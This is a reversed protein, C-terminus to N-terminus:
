RACGVKTPSVVVDDYWVDTAPATPTLYYFPGIGLAKFADTSTRTVQIATVEVDDVFARATTATLAWEVCHFGSGTVLVQSAKTSTPASYVVASLRGGTDVGLEFGNGEVTTATALRLLAPPKVPVHTFFRVFFPLQPVLVNRSARPSNGAALHAKLSKAGRHAMASDVTISCGSCKDDSGPLSSLNTEFDACFHDSALCTLKPAADADLDADVGLAGDPTVDADIAVDSESADTGTAGGGDTPADTPAAELLAGCACVCSAAAFIGLVPRTGSM